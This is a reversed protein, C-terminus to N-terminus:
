SAQQLVLDLLVPRPTEVPVPKALSLAPQGIAAAVAAVVRPDFQRGVCRVLEHTAEASSVEDRYVRKSTLADYADCVHLIRAGLPIEEGALKDPYGEGDWREHHHLVWEAIVEAGLGRLMRYGIEPHRALTQRESDTLPGAKCLIDEPIALKGLDHLEGAIRILEIEAPDLGMRAAVCSALVGVRHSHRGTYADRADVARALVAAARLADARDMGRDPQLSRGLDLLEATYARARNKGREKAWYLAADAHGVLEDHNLAHDPCTAIGASVSVRGGPDHSIASIREVIAEAIVLGEHQSRGPLLLAFEDGGLRFAEGDHRLCSAVHTLVHDGTPHGHRDNIRKFDDLDILCLTLPTGESRARDLDREIQEHFHRHNGLGTLPDTLALRMATLAKHVSRQYLSIALLPGILSFLFLPSRDWLVMLMLTASAMIAFPICTWYLAHSLVSLFREEAFRAVAAAVLAVNM